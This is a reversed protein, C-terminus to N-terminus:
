PLNPVMEPTSHSTTTGDGLQGASNSGWAWVTGDALMALGHYDGTALVVVSGLGVVQVPTLRATTTGDGLQGSGNAGWSWVTGDSRLALGHSFGAAVHTVNALGVVQVPTLRNTTTGDGLQGYFNNGWSWVTGDARVALTAGWGTAIAVVHGLGGVQVPSHRQTTTGDGLEGNINDGWGWVTGDSLLAVSHRLGAAIAVVNALGPVPAAHTRGTTTGDGLQGESNDGWALLTGDSRLALTHDFGTAIAVVNGVGQAQVATSRNTMSGDGLQGAFDGGWGWVTGDSRLATSFGPKYPSASVAVINSVNLVLVPSKRTTTTGDGIEGIQNDGWAYVVGGARIALSHDVGGSIVAGSPPPAHGACVGATCVDGITGPNGDDCATGDPADVLSCAGTAANCTGAVHCQDPPVCVVPNGGTCVGAQCTDTQTCANGDNCPTGNAASPNSCAGTAPNCVGVVHCADSAACAVPNKGTCVGAQCTDTQTCADGDDCPTGDAAAVVSCAGTTPDCAGGVHCADPAACVVPNGGTCRGAQCTDTQTCPDGDDCPTGDPQGSCPGPLYCLDLRPRQAQPRESSAFVTSGDLDRELLMGDNPISGDVWDQVLQTLDASTPSGAPFTAWVEPLWAGGFSNWTVTAESWPATVMHARVPAGGYLLVDLTVTAQTITADPPIVSTDFQLLAQRQGPPVAGATLSGSGGFNSTAQNDAILADQVSGFLGRQITLCVPSSAAATAEGIAEAPPADGAPGCGAAIRALAVALALGALRKSGSFPRPDLRSSTM